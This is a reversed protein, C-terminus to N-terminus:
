VQTAGVYYVVCWGKSGDWELMATEAAANFSVSTLASFQTVTYTPSAGQVQGKLNASTATVAFSSTTIAGYCYIFKRQGLQTGDAISAVHDAALTFGTGGFVLTTGGVMAATTDATLPTMWEILGSEPGEETQCMVTGSANGNADARLVYASCVVTDGATGGFAGDLVAVDASTRTVITAVGPTLPHTSDAALAGGVCIVKDGVAANTFLATKTLTKTTVVLSGSGDLVSSIPGPASTTTATPTTQLPIASGRGPLGLGTTSGISMGALGTTCVSIRGTKITAATGVLVPCVSGPLYITLWNQGTADAPKRSKVYGAFSNHNTTSPREVRVNRSGDDTTATGYNSVYCVGTGAEIADTGTYMVRRTLGRPTPLVAVQEDM